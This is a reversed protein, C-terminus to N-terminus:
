ITTIEIIVSFFVFFKLRTNTNIVGVNVFNSFNDFFLPTRKLTQQRKKYKKEYIKKIKEYERVHYFDGKNNVLYSEGYQTTTTDWLRDGIMFFNSKAMPIRSKKTSFECYMHYIVICPVPVPGKKIGSQEIFELTHRTFKETTLRAKRKKNILVELEAHYHFASKNIYIMNKQVRFYQRIQNIFTHMKTRKDGCTRRYLMVLARAPVPYKGSRIDFRHIFELLPTQIVQVTQLEGVESEESSELQNLLEEETLDSLHKIKRNELRDPEM